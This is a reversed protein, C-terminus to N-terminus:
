LQNTGMPTTTQREIGQHGFHSLCQGIYEKISCGGNKKVLGLNERLHTINNATIFDKEATIIGKNGWASYNDLDLRRLKGLFVPNSDQPAIGL